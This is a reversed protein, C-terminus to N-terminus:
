KKLFSRYISAYKAETVEPAWHSRAHTLARRGLDSRAADDRLLHHLAAHYEDETNNVKVVFEGELEPVAEGIRKNIV